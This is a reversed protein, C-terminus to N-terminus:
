DVSESLRAAFWDLMREHWGESPTHGGPHLVLDLRGDPCRWHRTLLSGDRRMADPRDSACSLATRLVALGAFLDAQILRGGAVARGEIPVVGDVWGHAHLMDMGGACTRPLPEWFAGSVPAYARALDPRRCAVDWVMSGGRSFGTLLIRGRDVGHAAADALVRRLFAIDDRPHTGGDRVGWDRQRAEARAVGLPAILAMGRESVARRRPADGIAAAANAGWGHLYVVGPVGGPPVAREPMVLRYAGGEVKCASDAGPCARAPAAVLVALALAFAVPVDSVPRLAALSCSRASGQRAVGFRSAARVRLRRM